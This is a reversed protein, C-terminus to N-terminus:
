HKSNRSFVSREHHYLCVRALKDPTCVCVRVCPIYQSYCFYWSSLLQKQSFQEYRYHKTSSFSPLAIRPRDITPYYRRHCTSGGAIHRQRHQNLVHVHVHVHVTPTICRQLSAYM